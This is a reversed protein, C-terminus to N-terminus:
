KIIDEKLIEDLKKDLEEKSLPPETSVPAKPKAQKVVPKKGTEKKHLEPLTLRRDAESHIDIEIVQYRIIQKDLKLAQSFKAMVAPPLDFEVVHYIAQQLKSIPYALKKRGLSEQRTIKGQDATILNTVRDTITKYDEESKPIDVLYLLEYHNM